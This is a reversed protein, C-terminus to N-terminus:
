PTTTTAVAAERVELRGRGAARGVESRPGAPANHSASHSRATRPRSAPPCDDPFECLAHRWRTGSRPGGDAAPRGPPPATPLRYCIPLACTQVGTVHFGRIGDDAQLF